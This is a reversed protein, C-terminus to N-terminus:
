DTIQSLAAVEKMPLAIVLDSKEAPRLSRTGGFSQTLNVVPRGAPVTAGWNVPQSSRGSNKVTQKTQNTRAGVDARNRCVLPLLASGAVLPRFLKV